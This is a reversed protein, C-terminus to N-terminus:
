SRAPTTPERAPFGMGSLALLFGLAFYHLANSLKYM